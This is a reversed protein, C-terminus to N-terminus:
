RNWIGGQTSTKAMMARRKAHDNMLKVTTVFSVPTDEGEWAHKFALDVTNSLDVGQEDALKIVMAVWDKLTTNKRTHVIRLSEGNNILSM